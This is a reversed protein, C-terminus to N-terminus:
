DAFNIIYSRIKEKYYDGYGKGINNMYDLLEEKLEILKLKMEINYTLIAYDICKNLKKVFGRYVQLDDGSELQIRICEILEPVTNLVNRDAREWSDGSKQVIFITDTVDCRYEQRQSYILKFTSELLCNGASCCIIIGGPKTIREAEKIVDYPIIFDTEGNILTIDFTNDALNTKDYDSFVMSFQPLKTANLIRDLCMNDSDNGVVDSILCLFSNENFRGAIEAVNYSLIGRTSGFEAIKFPASTKSFLSALAVNITFYRLKEHDSMDENLKCNKNYIDFLSTFITEVNESIAHFPIKGKNNLYQTFDAVIKQENHYDEFIFKDKYVFISSM